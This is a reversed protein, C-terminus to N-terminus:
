RETQMAGMSWGLEHVANHHRGCLTILNDLDTLGGDIWHRMHHVDTFECYPCGPVRCGKDRRAIEIRQATTPDRRARGQDLICGDPGEVSLTVRADCALRRAVEAAVPGVGELEAVGSEMGMLLTLPAHLVLRPRLARSRSRSRSRGGGGGGGGGGSMEHGGSVADGGSAAHGGPRGPDGLGGGEAAGHFVEILIDYLRQDYPVYAGDADVASASRDRASCTM